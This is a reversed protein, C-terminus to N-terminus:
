GAPEIAFGNAALLDCAVGRGLRRKWDSCGVSGCGCSPSHQKLIILEPQLELALKLVEEAGRRFADTVEQGDKNFVRCEFGCVFECSSSCELGAAARPLSLGGQLEPCIPMVQDPSFRRQLELDFKSQADYRCPWGLLCASVLIQPKQKLSLLRKQEAKLRDLWLNAQEHPSLGSNM